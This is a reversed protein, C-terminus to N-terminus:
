YMSQWNSNHYLCQTSIPSINIHFRIRITKVRVEFEPTIGINDIVGFINWYSLFKILEDLM